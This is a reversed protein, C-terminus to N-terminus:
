AQAVRERVEPDSPARRTAGTRSRRPRERDLEDAIATAARTSRGRSRRWRRWSRGAFAMWSRLEADLRPEDDLDIPAHLLSCSPAVVLPRRRRDQAARRAPRPERELDNIWVNRGDVVGAFLWQDEPWGHEACWSSTTRRRPRPRPAVGAVPLDRLVRYADGVDDFYTTSWSRPASTSRARAGDYARSSARGARRETRDEVFCPEDLQVWTAGQRPWRARAGRRLGDVLPTSCSWRTSARRRRRRVQGAAPFQGARDAGAAHRHGARWRRPSSTSRSADVLALVAHGPELEPVIYHYNTDFWKTMEMATVDVGGTQRGRAM